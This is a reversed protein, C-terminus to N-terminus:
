VKRAARAADKDQPGEDECEGSSSEEDEEEEEASDSSDGAQAQVGGGQTGGPGAPGREGEVAPRAPQLLQPTGPDDPAPLTCGGSPGAACAPLAALGEATGELQTAINSRAAPESNDKVGSMDPKFGAMNQWYIGEVQGKNAQLVEHDREYHVV